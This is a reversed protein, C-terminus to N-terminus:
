QESISNDTPAVSDGAPPEHPFPADEIVGGTPVAVESTFSPPDTASNAEVAPPEYRYVVVQAPLLARDGGGHIFGHRIMKAVTRDLGEDSTPVNRSAFHFQRVFSVGPQADVTRLGLVALLDELQGAIISFDNSITAPLVGSYDRSAADDVTSKLSALEAFSPKLFELVQNAQLSDIRDQMRRITDEQAAAREHNREVQGAIRALQAATQALAAPLRDRIETEAAQEAPATNEFDEGHCDSERAPEGPVVTAVRDADSVPDPGAVSVPDPLATESPESAIDAM